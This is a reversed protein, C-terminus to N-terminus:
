SHIHLSHLDIIGSPTEREIGPANWTATSCRTPSTPCPPIRASGRAQRGAVPGASRGPVLATAAHRARRRNATARRRHCVTPRTAIGLDFSARAPRQGSDRAQTPRDGADSGYLSRGTSAGAMGMILRPSGRSGSDAQRGGRATFPRRVRRRDAAEISCRSAPWARRGPRTRGQSCGDRALSKSAGSIATSREPPFVM